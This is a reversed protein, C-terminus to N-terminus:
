VTFIRANRKQLLTDGPDYARDPNVKHCHDDAEKSECRDDAVVEIRLGIDEKNCLVLSGHDDEADSSGDHDKYAGAVAKVDCPAKCIDCHAQFSDDIDDRDDEEAANGECSEIVVLFLLTLAEVGDKVLAADSEIIRIDPFVFSDRPVTRGSENRGTHTVPSPEAQSM